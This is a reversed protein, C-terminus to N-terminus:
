LGILAKPDPGVTDDHHSYPVARERLLRGRQVTVVAVIQSLADPPVVAM